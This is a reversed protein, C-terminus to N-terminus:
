CSLGTIDDIITQSAEVNTQLWPRSKVQYVILGGVAFAAGYPSGARRGIDAIRINGMMAWLDGKDALLPRGGPMLISM